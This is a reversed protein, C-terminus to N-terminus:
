SKGYKDLYYRRGMGVYPEDVTNFRRGSSLLTLYIMCSKEAIQCCVEAERLTRGCCIIGHNRILLANNGGLAGTVAEGLVIHEESTVFRPTIPICGGLLQCMEESLAPVGEDLAAAAMAYPSHTHIVANIDARANMIGRHLERESTSVRNGSVREGGPSLVPLDEPRMDAYEVRSPTMLYNGDDLRASINGWTGFIYGAASLRLCTDIIEGGLRAISTM